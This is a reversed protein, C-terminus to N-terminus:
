GTSLLRTSQCGTNSVGCKYIRLGIPRVAMRSQPTRLTIKTEKDCHNRLTREFSGSLRRLLTFVNVILLLQPSVSYIEIIIVKM